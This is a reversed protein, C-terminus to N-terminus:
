WKKPQYGYDNKTKAEEFATHDQPFAELMLLSCIARNSWVSKIKEMWGGKKSKFSRLRKELKNMLDEEILYNLFCYDSSRIEEKIWASIFSRYSCVYMLLHVWASMFLSLPPLSPLPTHNSQIVFFFLTTVTLLQHKWTNVPTTKPHAHTDTHTCTYTRAQHLCITSHNNM